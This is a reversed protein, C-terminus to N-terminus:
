KRSAFYQISSINKKVGNINKKELYKRDILTEMINAYTSPRGIGSKEM